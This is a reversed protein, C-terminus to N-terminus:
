QLIDGADSLRGHCQGKGTCQPQFIAADLKRRVHQWRINRTIGDVLLLSTLQDILRARHEAIQKQCVLQIARGRARLRREQFSHFLPLDRDVADAM